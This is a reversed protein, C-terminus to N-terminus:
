AEEQAREFVPLARDLIGGLVAALPKGKSIKKLQGYHVRSIGILKRGKRRVM